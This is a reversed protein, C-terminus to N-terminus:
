QKPPDPLWGCCLKRSNSPEGADVWDAMIERSVGFGCSSETIASFQELNVMGAFPEPTIKKGHLSFEAGFLYESDTTWGATSSRFFLTLKASTLGAGIRM